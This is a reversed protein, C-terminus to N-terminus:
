VIPDLSLFRSYPYEIVFELLNAVLTLIPFFDLAQLLLFYTLQDL